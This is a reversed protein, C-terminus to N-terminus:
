YNYRKSIYVKNTKELYVVDEPGLIKKLKKCISTSDKNKMMKIYFDLHYKSFKFVNTDGFMKKMKSKFFNDVHSKDYSEMFSPNMKIYSSILELLQDGLGVSFKELKWVNGIIISKITSDFDESFSANVFSLYDRSIQHQNHQIRKNKINELYYSMNDLM